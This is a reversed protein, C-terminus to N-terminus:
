SPISRKSVHEEVFHSGGEIGLEDGACALLEAGRLMSFRDLGTVEAVFTNTEHYLGALLVRKLDM